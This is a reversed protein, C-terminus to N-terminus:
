IKDFVVQTGVVTAHEENDQIAAAIQRIFVILWGFIIGAAIMEFVTLNFYHLPGVFLWYCAFLGGMLSYSLTFFTKTLTPALLPLCFVLGAFIVAMGAASSNHLKPQTDYAFIGVGALCVGILVLSMRVINNRRIAHADDQRQIKSLDSVIYDALSAIVIGAVILTVNFAVSSISGTAGLSSFHTQWWYPDEATIMSTLAGSVLFLALVTSLRIANISAAALYIVYSSLAVSIGVIISSTVSDLIVGKFADSLIFFAGAYFLFCISAYVFALAFVSFLRRVNKFLSKRTESSNAHLYSVFFVVISSASALIAAVTGISKREFLPMADPWFFILSILFSVVLSVVAAYIAHSEISKNVNLKIEPKSDTTM